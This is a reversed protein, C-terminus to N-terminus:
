NVGIASSLKDLSQFGVMTEGSNSNKWTPFGSIGECHSKNNSDQCNVYDIMSFDKGFEKKQKACWGCGDIGHFKWGKETLKKAVKSTKSDKYNDSNFKSIAYIGFVIVPVFIILILVTAIIGAGKGYYVVQRPHHHRRGPRIIIEKM